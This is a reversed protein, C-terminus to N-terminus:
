QKVANAIWDSMIKLVEPSFTEELEGYEQLTCKKCHQFLHNLGPMEKVSHLSSKSKKLAGDIAALNTKSIVQIDKDGNIALVKCRLKELYPQPNFQLFYKYWPSALSSAFTNIFQKQISDSTIGTTAIVTNKPTSKEWIEIVNNMNTKADNINKANIFAPVLRNFLKGYAEAADKTIGMSILVGVNQETMLQLIKEGPAALLIIFDIDKRETAIMPAIMGGESHGIMGLHKVDVESRRKLYDLSVNVDEAFDASTSQAFIGTSKGTGRDDVRLVIYGTKTLHDAIVAFPKHEFIEENRNQAGSGTILLAAPFPGKGKPITITAGYHLSKDANDYEVDESNYSYPSQPTQPRKLATLTAVKKLMLDISRGQTLKGNITSDNICKGAYSGKLSVVDLLLSDNRVIVNSCQIGKVGQDPSDTTGTINGASDKEFHFVVRISVGVNIKGEWTGIIKEDNQALLGKTFFILM